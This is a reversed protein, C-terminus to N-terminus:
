ELMRVVLRSYTGSIKICFKERGARYVYEVSGPTVGEEHTLVMNPFCSM